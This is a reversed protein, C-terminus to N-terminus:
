ARLSTRAWAGAGSSRSIRLAKRSPTGSGARGGGADGGHARARAARLEDSALVDAVTAGGAAIALGNFPINWLLKRWRETSSIRWWRRRSGASRSLGGGGRAAAALARARVGRAFAHRSRFARDRGARHSEPLRFLARGARAGRGLARRPIGREGARKAAHAARDGARAAAAALEELAANATAKLAILSSIARASRRRARRVGAGAAFADGRAHPDHAGRAAGSELDSACASFARRRGRRALMGGYYCGVAGAGVVAIRPNSSAQCAALLPSAGAARWRSRRGHEKRRARFPAQGGARANREKPARTAERFGCFFRRWRRAGARAASRARRGRARLRRPFARALARLDVGGLALLLHQAAEHLAVARSPRAAAPSRRDAGDVALDHRAESASSFSRVM